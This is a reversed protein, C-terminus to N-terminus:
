NRVASRQPAPRDGFIATGIRVMTAGEEVAVEFDHSMGMSLHTLTLHPFRSAAEDRLGCLRRFFPRVAEPDPEFPPMTMLGEIHLHPFSGARELFPFLDREAVGTKSPEQGLNVEVLARVRKGLGSAAKELEQALKLSDLSQIWDFLRVALRAKNTQLHGVMHWLCPLDVEPIKVRAEQVRNEGIDNIGAAIAEQIASAPFTKAVAVVLVTGPDRGVRLAAAAIRERIGEVREKITM